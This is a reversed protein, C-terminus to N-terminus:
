DRSEIVLVLGERLSIRGEDALIENSCGLSSGKYLFGDEFPYKMGKLSLGAVRDTWALVSVYHGYQLNRPIVIESGTMRIRNHGDIIRCDIGELLPLRLLDISALTHDLRSGTAGLLDIMEAKESIAFKLAIETDSEDKESPFRIFRVLSGTEKDRLMGIEPMENTNLSWTENPNLGCAENPNLGCAENPNLGCAENPDLSRAPDTGAEGSASISEFREFALHDVSDYDGLIVHPVLGYANATELGRDACIILDYRDRGHSCFSAATEPDISGGSIILCRKM